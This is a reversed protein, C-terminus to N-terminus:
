YGISKKGLGETQSFAQAICLIITSLNRRFNKRRFRGKQSSFLNFKLSNKEMVPEGCVSIFGASTEIAIKLRMRFSFLNDADFHWPFM